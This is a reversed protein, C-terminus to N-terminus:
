CSKMYTAYHYIDFYEGAKFVEHKLIGELQYGCKELVKMSARNPAFVGAFLKQYKLESTAYDTMIRLAETAIGRGWYEEGLWYGIEALHSKWGTQPTVGVSGVFEGQYEIVKNVRNNATAGIEVWWQADKQTYPYPFTDIM